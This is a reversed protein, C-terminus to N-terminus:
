RLAPAGLVPCPAVVLGKPWRAWRRDAQDDPWSVLHRHSEATHLLRWAQGWAIGVADALERTTPPDDAADLAALLREEM